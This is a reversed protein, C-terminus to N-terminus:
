EVAALGEGREVGGAAVALGRVDVLMGDPDIRLVALVDHFAIVATEVDAPVLALRPIEHVGHRRPERVPNGGVHATRVVQIRAELVVPAPTPRAPRSASRAHHVVVPEADAATISELSGDIWGVRVDDVGLRLVAAGAAVVQARALLLANARYRAASRTSSRARAAADIAADAAATSSSTAATAAAVRRVDHVGLGTVLVPEVPVRRVHERRM